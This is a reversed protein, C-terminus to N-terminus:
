EPNTQFLQDIAAQHIEVAYRQKLAGEFESVLDEDIGQGIQNALGELGAKDAVPDAPKIEKLQAVYQGQPGSAVAIQGSQLQFLKSVLDPPLPADRKSNTRDFPKTTAPQLKRAAAVAEFSAPPKAQDALAKAEAETRAARQADLWDTGLQDKVQDFPKLASPTIDDTRVVFYATDQGVDQMAGIQGKPTDFAAKVVQGAPLTLGAIPKGDPAKGEADSAAIAIPKLKFQQAIQNLDSGASIADQVRNSLEYLLKSEEDKRMDAELKPRAEDFSQVGGPTIGAVKLITWGFPGKAPKTPENEKAAFAPDALLEPLDAKAVTGLDIDAADMKGLDKAVAAFDKGSALQRAAENATQEDPLLMQLVHRKELTTFDNLRSEYEAKVKDDTLKVDGAVDENQMPLVTFARYEPATYADHHKDYQEHLAADDPAPVDKAGANPLYVWDAVRQENRLKYLAQLLIAPPTVGDTAAQMLLDHPIDGRLSAEYAPESLGNAALVNLYTARDFKGDPGKFAPQREIADILQRDGALLHQRAAEQDLLARRVDGDVINPIIGFAKAQELTLQGQSRQIVRQVDQQLEQGSIKKSGVQIVTSDQPRQRLFDGIGWIGFSGILVVFLVKFFFSGAKSRLFQLM